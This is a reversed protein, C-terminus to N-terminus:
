WLGAVRGGRHLVGLLLRAAPSGFFLVGAIQLVPSLPEITGFHFLRRIRDRSEDALVRGFVLVGGRVLKWPPEHLHRLTGHRSRRQLTSDLRQYLSAGTNSM